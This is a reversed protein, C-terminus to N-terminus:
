GVSVVFEGHFSVRFQAAIPLECYKRSDDNLTAGDYMTTGGTHELM